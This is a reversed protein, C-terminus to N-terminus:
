SESEILAGAASLVRRSDTRESSTSVTTAAFLFSIMGAILDRLDFIKSTAGITRDCEGM